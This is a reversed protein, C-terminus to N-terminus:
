FQALKESLIHYSQNIYVGFLNKVAILFEDMSEPGLYWGKSDVSQPGHIIKVQWIDVERSSIDQEPQYDTGWQWIGIKDMNEWFYEWESNSPISVKTLYENKGSLKSDAESFFFLRGDVFKLTNHGGSAFTYEIEFQQPFLNEEVM